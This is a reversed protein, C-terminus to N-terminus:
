PGYITLMTARFWAANIRVYRARVDPLLLRLPVGLPDALAGALALGGPAEEAAVAWTSGDMSTEVRVTDPLRHVNGRTWLDLARVAAPAGLDAVLWDGDPEVQRAALPPGALVVPRYPAPSMEYLRGGGTIGIMRAEPQADMFATWEPAEEVSGVLVYLPHGRRLEALVSPDRRRLAWDIAAAHPPTYGAYGNVVALRLAM